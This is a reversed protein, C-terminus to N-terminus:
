RQVGEIAEAMGRVADEWTPLRDRERRAGEALRSRLAPDGLALTLADTLAPVDNPRVLLGGKGLSTGEAIPPGSGILAAIAGTPTSIVPLGRAIAEAVVMGYGEYLTPLVFLDAKDFQAGLREGDMEGCLSVRSQLRCAALVDRLRAVTEPDRDLSGVCALQWQQHPVAALARVLIEHGKRAILTAVCLLNVVATRSGRALPARDTGPEVVRVRDGSVGYGSLSAATAPSTVVVLRAGGLARREQAEFKAAVAPDLGSEAALPHHVLAVIRLRAAEREIQEPMAGCALGDIVVTADGPIAALARAADELAAAAPYPFSGHLEIVDVARGARRLGEVLRRDYGYGGTLTDLSGPVIFTLARM